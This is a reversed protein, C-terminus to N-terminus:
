IERRIFNDAYNVVQCKEGLAEYIEPLDTYKLIGRLMLAQPWVSIRERAMSDFSRPADLLKVSEIDDCLVAAMVAAVAGQGRGTMRITRCSRSKLFAVTSLLDRVRAALTSSNFMIECSNYHYDSGYADFFDEVNDLDCNLSRTEGIGRVDVGCILGNGTFDLLEDAASLHPVYLDIEQDEPFHMYMKVYKESKILLPVLIGPESELAFRSYVFAALAGQETCYTCRLTRCYPEIVTDPDPFSYNALLMKKLGARDLKKREAKFRDLKEVIFDHIGRTGPVGATQGGPTCRLEAPSVVSTDAETEASAANASMGGHLNFFDYMACRNEVSYGHDTPGIFLQLNEGAGLLKYVKRCEEFTEKLGRADFFDNKQGMLLVPRPAYALIFDGMECGSALIGPPIQEVDAPIENEINRQWSTVYCSPAAMTFRPDLAQVFTTMTGGGSNGTVGVRSPDIEPRSLLYDLASLADHARWTGFFEDCLWLQKGLMNHELVCRGAVALSNPVDIFQYREGQSVPDIILVAFGRKALTMAGALYADACKGEQAHGCLFLVAPLPTSASAPRYFNATVPFDPRSNFMINEIVLGDREIKSCIVAEPVGSREPLAFSAAIKARVGAVYAEADAKSKLAEIRASRERNSGRIRAVNYEQLLSGFVAPHKSLM